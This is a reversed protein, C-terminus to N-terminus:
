RASRRTRLAFAGAAIALVAAAPPALYFVSLPLWSWAGGAGLGGSVSVWVWCGLWAVGCALAALALRGRSALAGIVPLVAAAVMIDVPSVGFVRGGLAGLLLGGVAVVYCFMGVAGFVLPVVARAIISRERKPRADAIAPEEPPM